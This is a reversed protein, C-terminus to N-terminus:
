VGAGGNFWIGDHAGTVGATTRPCYSLSLLLAGWLSACCCAQSLSCCVLGQTFYLPLHAGIASATRSGGM